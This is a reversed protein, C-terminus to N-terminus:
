GGTDTRAKEVWGGKETQQNYILLHGEAKWRVWRERAGQLAAEDRGDFLDLCRTNGEFSRPVVGDLLLLVDASNPNEEVDTLWIPQREAQGLRATGHPLWSDAEYTWLLDDLHAVRQSSGALVVARHGAGVVKELLKPLARDLPLFLLHYFDIRSM